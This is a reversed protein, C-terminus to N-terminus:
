NIGPLDEPKPEWVVFDGGHKAPIRSIAAAWSSETFTQKSAQRWAANPVSSVTM